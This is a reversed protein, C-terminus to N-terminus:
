LVHPPGSAKVEVFISLVHQSLIACSSLIVVGHFGM